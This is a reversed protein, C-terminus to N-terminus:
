VANKLEALKRALSASEVEHRMISEQYTEIMKSKDESLSELSDIKGLLTKNEKVLENVKAEWKFKEIDYKKLKEYTQDLNSSLEGITIKKDHIEKINNVNEDNQRKIL